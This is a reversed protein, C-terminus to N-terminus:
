KKLLSSSCIPENGKILGAVKLIIKLIEGNGSLFDSTIVILKNIVATKKYIGGYFLLFL